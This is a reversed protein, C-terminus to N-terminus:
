EDPRMIVVPCHAHHACSGSVSGMVMGTFGGLGRSGVVLLRAGRSADILVAGPHGQVLRTELKVAPDLKTASEAARALLDKALHEIDDRGFVPLPDGAYRTLAVAPFQWAHVLLVMDGHVRAEAVAWAIARQADDSGDVGVVIMGDSTV